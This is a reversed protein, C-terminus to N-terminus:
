IFNFLYFWSRTEAIESGDHLSQTFAHDSPCRHPLNFPGHESPEPERDLSLGEPIVAIYSSVM